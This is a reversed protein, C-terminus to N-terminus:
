KKIYIYISFIHRCGMGEKIYIAFFFFFFSFFILYRSKFAFTDPTNRNLMDSNPQLAGSDIRLLRNLVEKQQKSICM